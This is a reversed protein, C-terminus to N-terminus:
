LDFNKFRIKQGCTDSTPINYLVKMFRRNCECIESPKRLKGLMEACKRLNGFIKLLTSLDNQSSESMKRNEGFVESSKRLSGVIEFIEFVKLFAPLNNAKRCNGFNDSSMRLSGIIESSKFLILFHQFTTKLEKRCNGITESSKRFNKFLNLFKPFKNSHKNKASEPAKELTKWIIGFCEVFSRCMFVKKRYAKNETLKEFLEFKVRGLNIGFQMRLQTIVEVFRKSVLPNQCLAKFFPM